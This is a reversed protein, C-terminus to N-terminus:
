LAPAQQIISTSKRGKAEFTILCINLQSGLGEKSIYNFGYRQRLCSKYEKLWPTTRKM